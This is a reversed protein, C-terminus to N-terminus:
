LDWRHIYDVFLQYVSRRLTKAAKRLILFRDVIGKSADFLLRVLIKKAIFHSKGSGAGGYFLLYRNKNSYYPYYKSNTINKLNTLDIQYNSHLKVKQFKSM